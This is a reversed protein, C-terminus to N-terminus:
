QHQHFWTDVGIALSVLENCSVPLKHATLEDRIDEGLGNYFADYQAQCEWGSSM